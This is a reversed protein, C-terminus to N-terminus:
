NFPLTWQFKEENRPQRLRIGCVTGSGHCSELHNVHNDMTM